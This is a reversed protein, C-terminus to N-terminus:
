RRRKLNEFPKKSRNSGRKMVASDAAVCQAVKVTMYIWLSSCQVVHDLLTPPRVRLESHASQVARVPRGGRVSLHWHTQQPPLTLRVSCLESLINNCAMSPQLIIHPLAETKSVSIFKRWPPSMKWWPPGLSVAADATQAPFFSIPDQSGSKHKRKSSSLVSSHSNMM